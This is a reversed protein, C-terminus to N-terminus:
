RIFIILSSELIFLLPFHTKKDESPHKKEHKKKKSGAMLVSITM